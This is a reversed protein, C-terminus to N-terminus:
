KKEPSVDLGYALLTGIASGVVPGLLYAMAYSGVKLSSFSLAVAIAPNLVGSSDFQSITIGIILAGGVVLGVAAEPIRGLTARTVAFALFATGIIEAVLSSSGTSTPAFPLVNMSYKVLAFGLTAGLVQAVLYVLFRTLSIKRILLQGFSVAPNFHAGSVPGLLYVLVGVVLGVAAPVYLAEYGPSGVTLLAIGVTLALLMTGLLEALAPRLYFSFTTSKM